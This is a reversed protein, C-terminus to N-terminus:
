PALLSDDEQFIQANKLVMGVERNGFDGGAGSYYVTYIHDKDVGANPHEWWDVHSDMYLINQGDKNHNNSNNSSDLSAPALEPDSVLTGTPNDYFPSKDAGLAVDSMINVSPLYQGYPMQFSFSINNRSKFDFLQNLPLKGTTSGVTFTYDDITDETSPCVFMNVNALEQRVLIWQSATVSTDDGAKPATWRFTKGDTQGDWGPAGPADPLSIKGPAIPYLGAANEAETSYMSMGKGVANLNAACATRRALEKARNLSPLLIAVLLAIIAIVVLLEILTFGKKGNM